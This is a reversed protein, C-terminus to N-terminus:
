VRSTSTRSNKIHDIIAKKVDTGENTSTDHFVYGPNTQGVM